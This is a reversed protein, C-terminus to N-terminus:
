FKFITQLSIVDIDDFTNAVGAQTKSDFEYNRYSLHMSLGIADFSQGVTVGM